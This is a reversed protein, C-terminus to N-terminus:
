NPKLIYNRSNTAYWFGSGTYGISSTNINVCFLYREMQYGVDIRTAYISIKYFWFNNPLYANTHRSFVTFGFTLTSLRGSINNVNYVPKTAAWESINLCFMNGESWEEEEHQEDNNQIAHSAFGNERSSFLVNTMLYKFSILHLLNWLHITDRVSNINVVTHRMADPQVNSLPYEHATSARSVSALTVPKCRLQLKERFAGDDAIWENESQYRIM